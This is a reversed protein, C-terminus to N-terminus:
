KGFPLQDTDSLSKRIAKSSQKAAEQANIEEQETEGIKPHMDKNDYEIDSVRTGILNVTSKMQEYDFCYAQNVWTQGTVTDRFKKSALKGQYYRTKELYFQITKEALSVMNSRRSYEAYMPYLGDWRVFLCVMGKHYIRKEESGMYKIDVVPHLIYNRGEKIRDQEILTSFISWFNKLDDSSEIFKQQERILEVGFKFVQGFTFPFEIKKELIAYATLITSLNKQLRTSVDNCAGSIMSQIEANKAQFQELVLERYKMFEDTLQALGKEELDKLENYKTNQEDTYENKYATLCLCRELLAVDLTPLDQGCLLVMQNIPIHETKSGPNNFNGQIKGQRNYASKLMEIWKMELSNKYEDVLCFANHFSKLTQSLGYITVKSLNNVPQKEGFFALLSDAQQTKGTGKPGFLNILPLEGHVLKFIADSYFVTALACMLIMANDGFVELYGSSWDKFTTESTMHYFKKENIYATKDDSYLKSFPKILYNKERITILGNDDTKIFTGDPMTIGDGWAWFGETQWGLQEIENSYITNSYLREKINDLMYQDGKFLFNGKGEVANKFRRLDNLDKTELSINMTLGEENTMEFLKFHGTSTNSHIIPKIIFTSIRAIHGTKSVHMISNNDFYHQYKNLDNLQDQSLNMPNDTNNALDSVPEFSKANKKLYKDLIKKFDGIILKVKALKFESQVNGLKVMRSSEPLYSLLEAIHEIAWGTFLDEAATLLGKVRNIYWDTFNIYSIDTYEDYEDENEVEGQRKRLRITEVRMMVDIGFSILRKLNLVTPTEEQLTRDYFETIQEDFIAKRTIKKLKLIESKQLTGCNMGIYNNVDNMRAEMVEEFKSFLYAEKTEVISKEAEEDLAFWKGEEQPVKLKERLRAIDRNLENEKIGFIRACTQTYALRV